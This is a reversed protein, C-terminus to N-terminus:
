DSRNEGKPSKRLWKKAIKKHLNQSREKPNPPSHICSGKTTRKGKIGRGFGHSFPSSKLTKEQRPNSANKALNRQNKKNQSTKTSWIKAISHGHPTGVIGLTKQLLM